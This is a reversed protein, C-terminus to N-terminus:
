AGIEMLYINSNIGANFNVENGNHTRVQIKYTTESTTNPSDIYSFPYASYIETIGSTYISYTALTAYVSTSGRVFQMGFGLQDVTRANISASILIKSNSATPTIAVSMATLDTYSSSSINQASSTQVFNSVQLVKGTGFPLATVAGLSANAINGQPITGTIANAGGLRTIAM